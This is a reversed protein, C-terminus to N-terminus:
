LDYRATFLWAIGTAQQTNRIIGMESYIPRESFLNRGTCTLRLKETLRYSAEMNWFQYDEQYPLRQAAAAAAPQNSTPKKAQFNTSLQVLFKGRPSRYSIGANFLEPAVNALDSIKAGPTGYDGEMKAIKTYNGWVAVGHLLKPVLTWERLTQRFSLEYGTWKANGLNSKTSVQWTAFESGLNLEALLAPTMTVTSTNIYDKVDRNFWGATWQGASRSYYEISFDLNKSRQPLLGARNTATIIHTTDNQSVNNPIVDSLNPRGIGETYSARTQLGPLWEYRL